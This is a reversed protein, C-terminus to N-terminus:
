VGLPFSLEDRIIFSLSCSETSHPNAKPSWTGSYNMIKVGPGTKATDTDGKSLLYVRVDVWPIEVDSSHDMEKGTSQLKM